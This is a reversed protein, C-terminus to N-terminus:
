RAPEAVHVAIRMTLDLREASSPIGVQALRIAEVTITPVQAELVRIFRLAGELDAEGRITAAYRGSSGMAATFPEVGALRVGAAGAARVIRDRVKRHALIPEEDVHVRAALRLALLDLTPSPDIALLALERALLAREARLQEGGSRWAAHLPRLAVPWLLALAAIALGWRAVPGFGPSGEGLAM